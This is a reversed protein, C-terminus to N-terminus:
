SMAARPLHQTLTHVHVQHLTEWSTFSQKCQVGVEVKRAEWDGDESRVSMGKLTKGESAVEGQPEKGEIRFLGVM